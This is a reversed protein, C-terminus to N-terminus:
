YIRKTVVNKIKQFGKNVTFSCIDTIETKYVGTILASLIFQQQLAAPHYRIDKQWSLRQYISLAAPL